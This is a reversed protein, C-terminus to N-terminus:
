CRWITTNRVAAARGKEACVFHLVGIREGYLGFNKAFSQTLAFEMRVCRGHYPFVADKESLKEFVDMLM